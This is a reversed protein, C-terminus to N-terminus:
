VEEGNGKRRLDGILAPSSLMSSDSAVPVGSVSPGVGWRRIALILEEVDRQNTKSVSEFLKKGDKDEITITIHQNRPASDAWGEPDDFSSGSCAFRTHNLLARVDTELEESLCKEGVIEYLAGRLTAVMKILEGRHIEKSDRM